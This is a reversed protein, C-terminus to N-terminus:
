CNRVKCGAKALTSSLRATDPTAPVCCGRAVAQDPRKQLWDERSWMPKEWPSGPDQKGSSGERCRGALRQRSKMVLCLKL